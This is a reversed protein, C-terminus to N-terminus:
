AEKVLDCNLSPRGSGMLRSPAGTIQVTIGPMVAALDSRRTRRHMITDCAGCLATLNGSAGTIPVYEVMGLAPPRPERCRFCYLTGPRCSRKRGTRQAELFARLTSGAFLMPRRRDIPELGKARWGRVTNKHVDLTRATDEVSYSYHLKVRRPNIRKAAM